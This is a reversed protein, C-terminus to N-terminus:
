PPTKSTEESPLTSNHFDVAIKPRLHIGWSKSNDALTHAFGDAADATWVGFDLLDADAVRLKASDLIKDADVLQAVIEEISDAKAAEWGINDVELGSEFDWMWDMYVLLESVFEM